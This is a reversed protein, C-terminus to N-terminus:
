WNVVAKNFIDDVLAETITEILQDQVDNLNSSSDYDEFRSFSEEFNQSEDYKNVFTVKVTITLRNKAAVDNGQIAIPQIAYGTIKGEISLDGNFNVLDLRTQSTFRDRLADTFTSSLTPYVLLAENPFYAISITKAQVPISAGTFSYSMTCGQLLVLLPLFVASLFIPFRKM